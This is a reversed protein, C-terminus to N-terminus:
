SHGCTISCTPRRPASRAAGALGELYWPDVPGRRLGYGQALRLDQDATPRVVTDSLQLPELVTAM